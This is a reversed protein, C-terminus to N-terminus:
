QKRSATKPFREVVKADGFVLPQVSYSEGTKKHKVLLRIKSRSCFEDAICHVGFRLSRNSKAESLNRLPFRGVAIAENLLECHATVLWERSNTQVDLWFSSRGAAKFGRRLFTIKVPANQRAQGSEESDRNALKSEASKSPKAKASDDAFLPSASLVVAIVVLTRAFRTM